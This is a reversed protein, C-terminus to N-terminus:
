LTLRRFTTKIEEMRSRSAPLSRGDDLLIKAPQISRIFRYNVLYSKHVRIFGHRILKEELDSMRYRISETQRKETLFLTIYKDLSQAYIIEQIRYRYLSANNELVIFEQESEHTLDSLLDKICPGIRSAFEDKPLFRFPKVELSDYVHERHISIYIIYCADDLERIKKGLNLGNILPMDIDLFYVDWRRDAYLGALLKGSDTFLDISATVGLNKFLRTLQECYYNVTSFEDDCLAIKLMIQMRRGKM